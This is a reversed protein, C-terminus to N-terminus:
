SVCPAVASTKAEASVFFMSLALLAPRSEPSWPLRRCLEIIAPDVASEPIHSLYSINARVEGAGRFGDSREIALYRASLSAVLGSAATDTNCVIGDISRLSVIMLEEM